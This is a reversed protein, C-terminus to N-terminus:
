FPFHCLYNVSLPSSNKTVKHSRVYIKRQITHIIKRVNWVGITVVGLVTLNAVIHLSVTHDMRPLIKLALPSVFLDLSCLAQHALEVADEMM